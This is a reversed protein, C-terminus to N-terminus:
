LASVIAKHLASRFARIKKNNRSPHVRNTCLVVSLGKAPELWLSCGTFGCMGVADSSLGSDIMGNDSSPSDWILRYSGDLEEPREYWFQAVTRSDLFQSNGHACQIMEAAYTFLDDATSFLGSHGAVGGMAWANDDHVEGCLVRGRWACEETPAILETVPHIGRRKILSLDIFSTSKLRLPQFVHKFAAKELTMGCLSEALYGLMILGLDSYIQRAGIAYRLESRNIATVIFDRATRSTLIGMRSGSNANILDEFFPAWAALGATHNLLQRVTIPSKGHVGFGHVYRSVRDALRLKNESVLKMLLSSTVVLQTLSAVDFVTDIKMDGRLKASVGQISAGGELGAGGEELSGTTSPGKAASSGILSSNFNQTSEENWRAGVAGRFLVERNRGVILVAGPFVGEAAGQELLEKVTALANPAVPRLSLPKVSSPVTRQALQALTSTISSSMGTDIDESDSLASALEM